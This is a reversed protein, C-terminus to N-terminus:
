KERETHQRCDEAHHEAIHPAAMHALERYLLAREEKKGDPEQEGQEAHEREMQRTQM